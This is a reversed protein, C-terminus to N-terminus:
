TGSAYEESSVNVSGENKQALYLYSGIKKGLIDTGLSTEEEKEQATNREEEKVDMCHEM